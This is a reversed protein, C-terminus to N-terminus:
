PYELALAEMIAVNMVSEAIVQFSTSALISGSPFNRQKSIEGQKTMRVQRPDNEQNKDPLVHLKKVAPFSAATSKYLAPFINLIGEWTEDRLSSTNNLDDVFAFCASTRDGGNSDRVIM